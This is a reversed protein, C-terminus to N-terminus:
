APSRRSITGVQGTEGTEGIALVLWLTAFVLIVGIAVAAAGLSLASGVIGVTLPGLVRGGDQLTALGALFESPADAPAVDSGLTLMSGAGIGNGIGILVGAGVVMVVSEASWALGLLVHGLAMLLFSPVMGSLRGFRDMLFGSVPFLLLDAGASIAVLAGVATASYDLDDGILPLVVQRGERAAVVLFPVLGVRLLLRRHKRLAALLGGGTPKKFEARLPMANRGSQLLPILGVTTLLGAVLFATTFGAQDVLVGGLVPGILHSFRASGGILSMARGRMDTAVRRTVWTQRSLRMATISAGFAARLVFLAIAVNTVGLLATSVAIVILAIAMVANESTRAILSGAPLGGVASGIGTAALIVGALELSIGEATLYLPLVPVLMGWAISAAIVPLYVPAWLQGVVVRFERPRADPNM